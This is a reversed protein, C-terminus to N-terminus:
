PTEGPQRVGEEALRELYARGSEVADVPLSERWPALAAEPDLLPATVREPLEPPHEPLFPGATRSRRRESLSRDVMRGMDAFRRSLSRLESEMRAGPLGRELRGTVGAVAEELARLSAPDVGAEVLDDALDDLQRGIERQEAAADPNGGEGFTGPALGDALAREAEAMAQLQTAAAAASAGSGSPQGAGASASTGGAPLLLARALRALADAAAVVAPPGADIVPGATLGLSAEAVREEAIRTLYVAETLAEALDAAAPRGGITELLTDLTRELGDTVVRQRAARSAHEDASLAPSAMREVLDQEREALFLVEGGARDLAARNRAQEEADAQLSAQAQEAARSLASAADRQAQAARAPDGSRVGEAAQGLAGDVSEELRKPFPTAAERASEALADQSEAIEGSLEESTARRSREALSTEADAIRNLSDIGARVALLSDIETLGRRIAELVSARAAAQAAPDPAVGPPPALQTRSAGQLLRRYGEMREALGRPLGPDALTRDLASVLSDAAQRLREDIDEPDDPRIGPRGEPPEGARQGPPDSAERGEVGGAEEIRDAMRERAAERETRALQALRSRDAVIATQWPSSARRGALDLVTARYRLTEGPAADQALPVAGSLTTDRAGAPDGLSGSRGDDTEWRLQSLGAASGARAEVWGRVATLVVPDEAPLVVDVWAAGEAAIQFPESSATRGDADRVVVRAPGSTPVVSGSFSRGGIELGLPGAEGVELVASTLSRSSEGRVELRAGGPLTRGVLPFWPGAPTRGELRVVALPARVSVRRIASTFPGYRVRYEIDAAVADWRWSGSPASALTEGSWSGGPSRRELVLAAGVAPGVFRAEGDITAGREVQVDGPAIRWGVSPSRWISSPAGLAASVRRAADPTTLATLAALGALGLAIWRRERAARREEEGLAEELRAEGRRKMWGLIEARRRMALSGSAPAELGVAGGRTQPFLRDIRRAIEGASPRGGWRGAIWAAGATLIIAGTVYGLPRWSSVPGVVGEWGILLVLCAAVLAVATWALTRRRRRRAAAALNLLENEMM